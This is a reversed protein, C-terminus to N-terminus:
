APAALGRDIARIITKRNRHGKEYDKLAALQQPTLEDLQDVVEGVPLDDYEPIIRMENLEGDIQRLIRVRNYNHYEYARVTELDKTSLSKVSDIIDSVKMEEYGPLIDEVEDLTPVKAGSQLAALLASVLSDEAESLREGRDMFEDLSDSLGERLDSIKERSFDIAGIGAICAKRLINSAM